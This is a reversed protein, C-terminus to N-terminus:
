GTGPRTMPVFPGQSRYGKGRGRVNRTGSEWIWAAARGPRRALVIEALWDPDEKELEEMQRAAMVLLETGPYSFHIRAAPGPGSLNRRVLMGGTGPVRSLLDVARELPPEAGSSFPRAALRLGPCVEIFTDRRVTLLVDESALRRVAADLHSLPIRLCGDRGPEPVVPIGTAALMAAIRSTPSPVM